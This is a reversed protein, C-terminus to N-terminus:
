LYRDVVSLVFRHAMLTSLVMCNLIIMTWSGPPPLALLSTLGICPAYCPYEPIYHLALLICHVHRVRDCCRGGPGATGASCQSISGGCALRGRHRRWLVLANRICMRPLRYHLQKAPPTHLQFRRTCWYRHLIERREKPCGRTRMLVYSRPRRGMRIRALGSMLPVQM